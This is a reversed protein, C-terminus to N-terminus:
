EDRERNVLILTTSMFIIITLVLSVASSVGLNIEKFALKYILHGLVETSFSPGGRTMVRVIDFIKFSIILSILSMFTIEQRMGPITIHILEQFNNAGDVRAAEYLDPSIKQLGALFVVMFFGIQGWVGALIVAPLAFDPHGLWGRALDAMGAWRLFINIIGWRPQYIWIFVVGIIVPAITVPIFFITRFLNKGRIRSRSLVEAILFGITLPLLFTAASWILNNRLAIIFRPDQFAAKFYELGIYENTATFGEVRFFPTRISVLFPYIVFVLYLLLAPLLYVYGAVSKWNRPPTAKPNTTEM